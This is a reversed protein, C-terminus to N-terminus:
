PAGTIIRMAIIGARVFGEAQHARAPPGILNGQITRMTGRM